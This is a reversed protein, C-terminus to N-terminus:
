GVHIKDEFEVPGSTYSTGARGGRVEENLWGQSAAYKIAARKPKEDSGPMRSQLETASLGEPAGAVIRAAAKAKGRYKADYRTDNSASLHDTEPDWSVALEECLVRNRGEARFFRVPQAGERSYIWRADADDDIRTAGRAHEAGVIQEGRGTHATIIVGRVGAADVVEDIRGLFAGVDDNSNESGFGRM